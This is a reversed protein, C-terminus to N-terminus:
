FKPQVLPNIGRASMVELREMSKRMDTNVVSSGVNQFALREFSKDSTLGPRPSVDRRTDIQTDNRSGRPSKKAYPSNNYSNQRATQVVDEPM